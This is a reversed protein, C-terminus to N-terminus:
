QQACQVGPGSPVDEYDEDNDKEQGGEAHTNTGSEDFDDLIEAKSRDVNTLM